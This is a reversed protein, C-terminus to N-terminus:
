RRVEMVRRVSAAVIEVAADTQAPTLSLPPSLEVVQGEDGAPLVIVGEQLAAEAVRVGAAPPAGAGDLVVGLFAGRGRVGRVGPTGTLASVLGERLRGGTAEARAVLGEGDLVDLFALATACALPHGLFTSTHLAEGASAPWAEMVGRSGLCASLPLGGGLAKGVCLLDPVVVEGEADVEWGHAFLRGTRGFGTFVEDFIVVAGAERARRVVGAVFGAVPVRVGARGQVPELIVAGVPAASREASHLLSEVQELARACAGEADAGSELVDPFSAFRVGGHLHQRFPARFDARATAALSGLTLGHYGGEFALIGPRGTALLATKLAAEVAESGSNALFGRTETWPALGALRELLRVKIEPPHVDGMGHVLAEAQHGLAAVIAPHAHGAVAVGFAGTLDLYVNGDTDAVNAGRARRWFIPGPTGNAGGAGGGEAGLFTVNRSEVQALRAALATAGPGPVPGSLRPLCQGFPLEPPVNMANTPLIAGKM